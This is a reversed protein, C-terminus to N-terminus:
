LSLSITLTTTAARQVTVQNDVDPRRPRRARITIPAPLAPPKQLALVFQGDDGTVYPIADDSPASVTVGKVFKGSAADQATGRVLTAGADFPYAISPALCAALFQTRFALAQKPDWLPLSPDAVTADPFAPWGPSPMPLTVAIDAPLYYPTDLDSRVSLTLPGAGLGFFLFEGSSGKRAGVRSAATVMVDGLLEDGLTLGDRLLLAFSLQTVDSELPITPFSM